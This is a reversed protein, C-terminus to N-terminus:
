PKYFGNNRRQITIANTWKSQNFSYNGSFDYCYQTVTEQISAIPKQLLTAVNIAATIASFHTNSPLSLIFMGFAQIIKM